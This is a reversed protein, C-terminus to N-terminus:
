KVVIMRSSQRGYKTTLTYIYTGPELLGTNISMEFKGANMQQNALSAIKYGKSDFIELTIHLREPLEFGIRTFDKCPNPYNPSLIVPNTNAVHEEVSTFFGNEQLDVITDNHIMFSRLVLNMYPDGFIVGNLPKFKSNSASMPYEHTLMMLSDQGIFTLEIEAVQKTTDCVYESLPLHLWNGTSTSPDATFLDIQSIMELSDKPIMEERKIAVCAKNGPFLAVEPYQLHKITDTLILATQATNLKSISEDWPIFRLTEGRVGEPDNNYATLALGGASSDLCLDFYNYHTHDEDLLIEPGSWENGDFSASMLHNHVPDDTKTNLWVLTAMDDYPSGVQLRTQINPYSALVQPTGVAWTDSNRTLLSYWIHSDQTEMDVLQWIVLTKNASIRTMIPNARAIGQKNNGDATIKEMQMLSDSELNFSAFWIDQSEFLAGLAQDPKAKLFTQSTFHTQAWCFLADNNNIADSLPSNIAHHNIEITSVPSLLKDQRNMIRAKIKREGYVDGREIWTFLKYEGSTAITAEPYALPIKNYNTAPVIAGALEPWSSNVKIAEQEKDIPPFCESMDDGWLTTSYFMKPGWVTEEYWDWFIKAIVKGYTRFGFSKLFRNDIHPISRYSEGFGLPFDADLCFDVEALGTILEAGITFEMGLAGSYFHFSASKNYNPNNPNATVKLDGFSGWKGTLSDTILHLRNSFQYNGKFSIDFTPQVISGIDVEKAISVIEKIKNLIDFVEDYKSHISGSWNMNQSAIINNTGPQLYFQNNTTDFETSLFSSSNCGLNLIEQNFVPAGNLELKYETVFYKLHTQVTAAKISASAGGFFPVSSPISLESVFDQNNDEIPSTIKFTVPNGDVIESFNEDPVFDFWRPRTRHITIHFPGQTLAPDIDNGLYYGVTMNVGPPPLSAMNYVIHFTTDNIKRGVTDAVVSGYEDYFKAKVKLDDYVETIVYFTDLQTMTHPAIWQDFPGFNGSVKPPLIARTFFPIYDFKDYETNGQANYAFAIVLYSGTIVEGMDFDYFFSFNNDTYSFYCQDTCFGNPDFVNFFLQNYAWNPVDRRDYDTWFYLRNNVKTGEDFYGLGQEFNYTVHFGEIPVFINIRGLPYSIGTDPMSEAFVRATFNYEGSPYELINRNWTVCSLENEYSWIPSSGYLNANFQQNNADNILTGAREDLKYYFVIDEGANLVNITKYMQRNISKYDMMKGLLVIESFSGLFYEAVREDGTKDEFNKGVYFKGQFSNVAAINCQDTLTGDIYLRTLGANQGDYCAALHHWKGDNFRNSAELKVM